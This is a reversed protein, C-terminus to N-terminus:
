SPSVASFSEAFGHAIAAEAFAGACVKQYEARTPQDVKEYEARTPQDVKEYEARTPQSLLNEAAWSWDFQDAVSLCTQRSVVVGTPFLSRFLDVQESCARVDALMSVTVFLPGHTTDQTSM